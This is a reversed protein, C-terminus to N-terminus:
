QSHGEEGGHGEEHEEDDHMKESPDDHGESHEHHMMKQVRPPISDKTVTHQVADDHVFATINALEQGTLEIQEDFAEFQAAVMVQSHNWMRAAFQFVDMEPLMVHADIKMGDEGGIGNVAHCTICAKEIFLEKGKVADMVPNVLKLKVPEDLPQHDPITEQHGAEGHKEAALVQANFAISFLLTAAVHLPRRYLNM